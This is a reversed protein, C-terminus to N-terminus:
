PIWPRQPLIRARQAFPLTGNYPGRKGFKSAFITQWLGECRYPRRRRLWLFVRELFGRRHSRRVDASGCRPCFGQRVFECKPRLAM